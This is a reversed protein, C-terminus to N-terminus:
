AILTLESFNGEAVLEAVSDVVKSPKYACAALDARKTLGSLVLISPIGLNKALGMDTELNDGVVILNAAAIGLRQAALQAIHPVPKGLCVAKKGAAREIASAIAGCGLIPDGVTPIISDMNTALFNAGGLVFKAALCLDSYCLSRVEAILVCDPQEDQVATIGRKELMERICDEGILFVKGNPWNVAIHEAAVEGSTIIQHPEVHIVM